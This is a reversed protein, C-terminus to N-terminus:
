VYGWDTNYRVHRLLVILLHVTRLFSSGQQPFESHFPSGIPKSNVMPIDICMGIPKTQEYLNVRYRKYEDLFNVFGTKKVSKETSLKSLCTFNEFNQAVFM